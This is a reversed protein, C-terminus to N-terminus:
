KSTRFKARTKNTVIIILVAMGILAIVPVYITKDSTQPSILSKDTDKVDASVKETKKVQETNGDDNDSVVGLGDCNKFFEHAPTGEIVTVEDARLNSKDIDKKSLKKSSILVENYSPTTRFVNKGLKTVNSTITLKQLNENLEFARDLIGEVTEPTKFSEDQKDRPYNILVKRDKDYLVGDKSSFYKNEEDVIFAKLSPLYLSSMVGYVIYNNTSPTEGFTIKGKDTKVEYYKDAYDSFDSVDAGEFGIFEITKPITITEINNEFVPFHVGTGDGDDMYTNHTRIAIVKYGDIEEPIVIDKEEGQYAVIQATKNEIDKIYFWKGDNEVMDNIIIGDVSYEWDNLEEAFASFPAVLMVFIMVASILIKFNKM